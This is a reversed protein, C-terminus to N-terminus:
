TSKLENGQFHGGLWAVSDPLADSTVGRKFFDIVKRAAGMSVRDFADTTTAGIHPTLVVQPIALLASDAPLPEREFVDLGAAAIRGTRLAELLDSECVVPGRSTNILIPNMNIHEITNKNILHRTEATLPVHLSIVESTRLLEMLSVARAFAPANEAALYPDYYQIGMGFAQGFRAVRSGVRGLGVIGLTLGDLDCGLLPHRDWSQRLVAQHAAILKRSCALLLGWALEAASQANGEPVYMVRIGRKKTEHLDIHDFGSTATVVVKLEPTRDLLESNVKTQSRVILGEAQLFEEKEPLNKTKFVIERDSEAQLLALASLSFRELILIKKRM